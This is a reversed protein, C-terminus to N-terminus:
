SRWWARPDDVKVTETLLELKWGDGSKGSSVIRHGARRMRSVRHRVAWVTVGLSRALTAYDAPLLELFQEDSVTVRVATSM